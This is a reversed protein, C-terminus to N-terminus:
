GFVAEYLMGQQDPGLPVIFLDFAGLTPHSMPYTQQPLAPLRPGRFTLSFPERRGPGVDGASGTSVEILQLEVPPGERPTVQFNEGLRGAFMARTFSELM